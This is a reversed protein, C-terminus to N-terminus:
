REGFNLESHSDGVILDLLDTPASYGGSWNKDAWQEQLPCVVHVAKPLSSGYASYM